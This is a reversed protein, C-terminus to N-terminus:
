QIKIALRRGSSQGPWLLITGFCLAGLAEPVFALASNGTVQWAIGGLLPFLFACMYSITTMGAALQHVEDPGALLAPM